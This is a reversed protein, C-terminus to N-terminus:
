AHNQNIWCINILPAMFYAVFVITFLLIPNLFGVIMFLLNSINNKHNTYIDQNARRVLLIIFISFFGYIAFIDFWQAHQGVGIQEMKFSDYNAMWGVGGIPNELFTNISSISLQIRSYFDESESVENGQLMSDIEEFRNVLVRTEEGSVYELMPQILNYGAYFSSVALTIVIVKKARPLERAIAWFCGAFLIILATMYLSYLILLSGTIALTSFLVTDFLKGVFFLKFRDVVFPIFICLAYPLAFGGGIIVSDDKENSILERLGAPNEQIFVFSKYCYFLLIAVSAYITRKIIPTFEPHRILINKYLIYILIPSLRTFLSASTTISFSSTLFVYLVIGWLCLSTRGFWSAVAEQPYLAFSLGIFALLAIYGYTYFYGGGLLLFLAVILFANLIQFKTKM